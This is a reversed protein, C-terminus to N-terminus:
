EMQNNRSSELLHPLPNNAFFFVEDIPRM